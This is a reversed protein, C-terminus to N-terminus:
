WSAGVELFLVRGRYDSLRRTTGDTLPLEMDPIPKGLLAQGPRFASAVEVPPAGACGALLALGIAASIMGSRKSSNGVRQDSM